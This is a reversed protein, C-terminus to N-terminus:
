LLYGKYAWITSGRVRSMTDGSLEHTGVVDLEIRPPSRVFMMELRGVTSNPEKNKIGGGNWVM